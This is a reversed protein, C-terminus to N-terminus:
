CITSEFSFSIFLFLFLFHFFSISFLFLCFLFNRGGSPQASKPGFRAAGAREGGREEWPGLPGAARARAAGSMGAGGTLPEV